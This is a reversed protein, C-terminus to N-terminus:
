TPLVLLKSIPMVCTMNWSMIEVPRHLDRAHQADACCPLAALCKGGASYVSGVCAHESCTCEYIVRDAHLLGNQQICHNEATWTLVGGANGERGKGQRTKGQRAEGQRAKGQQANGTVKVWGVVWGMYRYTEPHGGGMGVGKSHLGVGRETRNPVDDSAPHLIMRHLSM